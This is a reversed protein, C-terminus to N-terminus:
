VMGRLMFLTLQDYRFGLRDGAPEDIEIEGPEEVIRPVPYLMPEDGDMVADGAEDVVPILDFLRAGERTKTVLTPVGDIIEIERYEEDPGQAQKRVLGPVKIKRTIEDRCIFGYRWPDLGHTEMIEIARQVTLGIHLRAGDEGKEEISALWQYVGIEAHLDRAAAIEEESFPRLPTKERADSTNIAGTIFYATGGRNGPGGLNQTGDAGFLVHGGYLVILKTGADIFAQSNSVGFQAVQSANAEIQFRCDNDSGLARVVFEAGPSINNFGANGNSAIFLGTQGSPAVQVTTGTVVAPRGDGQLTIQSAQGRLFGYRTAGNFFSLNTDSGNIVPSGSLTLVGTAKNFTAVKIQDGDAADAVGVYLALNGAGDDRFSASFLTADLDIRTALRPSAVPPKADLAAQVANVLADWDQELIINPDKPSARLLRKISDLENAM